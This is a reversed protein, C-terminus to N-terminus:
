REETEATEPTGPMPGIVYRVFTLPAGASIGVGSKSIYPRVGKGLRISARFRFGM